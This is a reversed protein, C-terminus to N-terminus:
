NILYHASLRELKKRSVFTVYTKGAVKKQTILRRKKNEIILSYQVYFFDMLTELILIRTDSNFLRNEVAETWLGLIFKFLFEDINEGQQYRVHARRLDFLDLPYCDCMKGLSSNDTFAASREFCQAIGGIYDGASIDQPNVVM